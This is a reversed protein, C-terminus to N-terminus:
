PQHLTMPAIITRLNLATSGLGYCLESRVAVQTTVSNLLFFTIGDQYHEPVGVISFLYEQIESPFFPNDSTIKNHKFYVPEYWHFAM